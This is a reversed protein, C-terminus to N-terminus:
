KRVPSLKYPMSMGPFYLRNLYEELMRTATYNNDISTIINRMRSVWEAPVGRDNRNYFLSVVEKEIIDYLESITSSSLIWGKDTMDVEAVWGDSVTFQLAGNLGAKMGSTGCAEKGKEPTNLWVDAGRTLFVADNLSYAPIYIIKNTLDKQSIYQHMEQIFKIGMEDAKSARGAIIITTPKKTDTVIKQLRKIDSFIVSPRKYGALRRAWVITLSNPDLINGTATKVFKALDQKNECHIAWLQEDSLQGIGEEPFRPSVWRHKHIGNTIPILQSNPYRRKEFLTHTISVGNARIATNILFRTTSFYEPDHQRLGMQWFDDLAVKHRTLYAGLVKKLQDKTFYLGSGPLITHKSAVIQPRINDLADILQIGGANDHLYEAALALPVFATHGENLHYISPTVKLKRLLKVGCVSLAVDHIMQKERDHPYLSEFLNRDNPENGEFNCDLLFLRVSEFAKEWVQLQVVRDEIELNILLPEDTDEKRVLLFGLEEPTKQKVPEQTQTDIPDRYLDPGNQYLLGIAVMPVGQEGAEMVYDGALVGLGGAYIPLEDTIGYESCFYVLPTAELNKFEYSKTKTQYNM